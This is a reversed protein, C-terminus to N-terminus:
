FFKTLIEASPETIKLYGKLFMEKLNKFEAMDNTSEPFMVKCNYKELEEGCFVPTTHIQVQKTEINTYVYYKTARYRVTDIIRGEKGKGRNLVTLKLTHSVRVMLDFDDDDTPNLKKGDESYVFKGFDSLIEQNKITASLCKFAWILQSELENIEEKSNCFFTLEQIRRYYDSIDKVAVGSGCYSDFWGINTEKTQQAIYVSVNHSTQVKIDREGKKCSHYEGPLPDSFVIVKVKFKQSRYPFIEQFEKQLTDRESVSNNIAFLNYTNWFHKEIFPKLLNFVADVDILTFAIDGFMSFINYDSRNEPNRILLTLKNNLYNPKPRSPRHESRYNADPFLKSIGMCDILHDFPGHRYRSSIHAARSVSLLNKVLESQCMM